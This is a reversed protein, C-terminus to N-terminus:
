FIRGTGYRKGLIELTDYVVIFADPDQKFIFDKMQPLEIFNTVTYLVNRENGSYAGVGKFFTASRGNEL